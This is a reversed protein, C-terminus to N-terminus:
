LRQLHAWQRAPRSADREPGGAPASGRIARAQEAVPLAEPLLPEVTAANRNGAVEHGGIAGSGRIARAQEAVPLAEPLEGRLKKFGM